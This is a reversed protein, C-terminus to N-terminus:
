FSGCFLFLYFHQKIISVGHFQINKVAQQTYIISCSLYNVRFTEVHKPCQLNQHLRSTSRKKTIQHNILQNKKKVHCIYTKTLVTLQLETM